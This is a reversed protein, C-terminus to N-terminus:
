WAVGVYGSETRRTDADPLRVLDLIMKDNTRSLASVVDQDAAAVICLESHDVIEAPSSVVLRSLHPIHEDIYARNRGTLRDISVQPDYIRLDFGKGLLREAVEVYPSERLDDTTPKFSLGFLGIRRRGSAVVIEIVRTVCDENSKMVSGLMPLELDHRAAAYLLARIDKPLCSGGFAFGPTLYAASLNLKRDAFFSRMVEQSDLGFARCIAGIENAFTIKVAHFANDVYKAMEAARLPIRIVAVDRGGGYMREVIDGSEPDSEGIVIKTATRFDSLANGERLFEPNVVFGVDVGVTRGSVAELLPIVHEEATGPLMTSRIVLTHRSPKRSLSEAITTAVRTLADTSLSGNRASPTGVAVLSLDTRSVAWGGDTTATLRRESIGRAILASLGPEAVPSVGRQVAQVKEPASDVGIVEHGLEALCAATVSGVYGLGFVSLRM